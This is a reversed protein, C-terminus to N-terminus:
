LGRKIKGIKDRHFFLLKWHELIPMQRLLELYAAEQQQNLIDDEEEFFLPKPQEAIILVKEGPNVRGLNEKAHKDKYQSSRFYELDSKEQEIRARLESNKGHLEELTQEFLLNRYFSLALGFAMFGVVTLGVVITLQKSFPEIHQYPMSLLTVSNQSQSESFDTRTKGERRSPIFPLPHTQAFRLCESLRQLFLM